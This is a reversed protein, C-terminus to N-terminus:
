KISSLFKSLLQGYLVTGRQVRRKALLCCSCFCCCCLTVIILLIIAGILIGALIASSFIFFVYMTSVFKLLKLYFFSLCQLCLFHNCCLNKNLFCSLICLTYSHKFLLLLLSIKIIKQFMSTKVVSICYFKYMSSIKMTGVLICCFIFLLVYCRKHCFM